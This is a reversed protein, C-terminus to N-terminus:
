QPETATLPEVVSVATPRALPPGTARCHLEDTSTFADRQKRHSQPVDIATSDLHRIEWSPNFVRIRTPYSPLPSTLHHEASRPAIRRPQPEGDCTCVYSIASEASMLM